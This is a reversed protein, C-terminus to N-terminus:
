HMLELLIKYYWLLNELILLPLNLGKQTNDKLRLKKWVLNKNQNMNEDECGSFVIKGNQDINHSIKYDFPDKWFVKVFIMFLCLLCSTLSQSNKDFDEPIRFKGFMPM